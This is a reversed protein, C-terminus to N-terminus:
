SKAGYCAKQYNEGVQARKYTRIESPMLLTLSTLSVTLLSSFNGM